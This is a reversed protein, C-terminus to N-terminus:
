RSSKKLLHSSKKGCLTESESINTGGRKWYVTDTCHNDIAYSPLYWFQEKSNQTRCNHPTTHLGCVYVPRLASHQNLNPMKPTLKTEAKQKRHKLKSWKTRINAKTIAARCLLHPCWIKTRHNRREIKKIGWRIEATASQIDVMSGSM